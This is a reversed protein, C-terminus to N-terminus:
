GFAKRSREHRAWSNPEPFPYFVGDAGVSTVETVFQRTKKQHEHKRLVKELVTQVHQAREEKLAKIELLSPEPKPGSKEEMCKQLEREQKETKEELLEM